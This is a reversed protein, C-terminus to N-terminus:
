NHMDEFDSEMPISEGSKASAPAAKTPTSRSPTTFTKKLGTSPASVRSQSAHTPAPTAAGGSKSGVLRLLQDVAGKLEMAQANLEEAASATEEASAASSQTVKDMQTLAINVQSIGSSQEKSASAIQGMTEDVKGVKTLIEQLGNDVQKSKTDIDTLNKVVQENVKVGNESKRISDEIISATEKAADASRKALNRVEDAVVAFGMGAEGARAAEVAANLALINTQFAIEDITKIIKAISDSSQKIAEMAQTLETSSSQAETVSSKLEQVRSVNQTTTQRTESALTKSDQVSTANATVMSAMEEMSSSTEELSAAQESAGEALLQSTSSLQSTASAIQNSGEGLANAISTLARSVASIIVYALVVGVVLATALGILIGLKSGAVDEQIDTLAHYMSEKSFANLNDLEATYVTAAGDMETRALNYAKENENGKKSIEMVASTAKAYAGRAGKVKELLALGKPDIVLKDLEAFIETNRARAKDITSELQAMDAKDNSGIHQYTSLLVTRLNYKMEGCLVSTPVATKAILNSEHNISNVRVFAFIGLIASILIISAFGFIIRKGITWNKMGITEM